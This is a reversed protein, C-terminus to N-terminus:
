QPLQDKTITIKYCSTNECHNSMAPITATLTLKLLRAEPYDLQAIAEILVSSTLTTLTSDEVDDFVFRIELRSVRSHSISIQVV